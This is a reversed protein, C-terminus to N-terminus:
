PRSLIFSHPIDSRSLAQNDKTADDVKADSILNRFRVLQKQAAEMEHQASEVRKVKVDRCSAM